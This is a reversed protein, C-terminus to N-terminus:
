HSLILCGLRWKDWTVGKNCHLGAGLLLEPLGPTAPCPSLASPWSQWPKYLLGPLPKSCLCPCPCAWGGPKRM